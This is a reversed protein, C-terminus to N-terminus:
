DEIFILSFMRGTDKNKRYSYFEYKNSCCTCEEVTIINERLIGESICQNIICQQLNLKDGSSIKTSKNTEDEEFQSIMGSSVEYCCQKIHPGIYIKINSPLSGYENKMKSLLSGTIKQQTGKWGSHVAAIVNNVSDCILVPVCDATFVGIGVRNRNTILADGELIKKNFVQIISSHIQHLYGIQTLNFINKIEELNGIGTECRFNFDKSNRATFFIINIRKDKFLFYEFNKNISAVM